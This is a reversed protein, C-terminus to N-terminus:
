LTSAPMPPTPKEFLFMRNMGGLFTEEHVCTMGEAQFLRAVWVRDMGDVEDAHVARYLTDQYWFRFKHCIVGVLPGIMTVIALGGPKLVRGVETIVTEREGFHNLCALMSVSDFTESVFPLREASGVVTPDFKPRAVQVDLGVIRSTPSLRKLFNSGCALDLHRAGAHDAARTHRAMRLSPLGVSELPSDPSCIMLPLLLSEWLRRRPAAAPRGTTPSTM